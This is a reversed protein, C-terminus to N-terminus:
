YCRPRTAICAHIWCGLTSSSVRHGMTASQFSVFLVETRWISSTRKIYIHLARRIDLSHWLHELWHVPEPCLNPLVLEHTRNFTSKDELHLTEVLPGILVSPSPSDMTPVQLQKNFDIGLNYLRRDLASLNPGTIPASWQRNVVNSFSRPAPVEESEVTPESFLPISSDSGEQAPDPTTPAM